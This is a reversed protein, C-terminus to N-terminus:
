RARRHPHRHHADSVHAHDHTLPLHRHPHAHPETFPGDHAHRHHEDHAHAHDHTLPEHTHLHTHREDLLLAIGAAMTAAALAITTDVREGLLPVALAAGLFPATAFYAAQRAGGLVRLARMTLVLSAGYAGAGLLLGAGTAALSPPPAGGLRAVLLMATGATLGKVRVIAIPDRGSLRQSLNTDLAWSACAGVVAAGGLLDSFGPEGRGGALVAGAVIAAAGSMARPGLHEGFLTTALLITFPAELNLLLSVTVASVHRLGVLLLWPGLMGGAVVVGAMVPADNWTLPTEVRGRRMVLALGAGLYLLGALTVPDVTPVLLKALPASAGFLAAAALAQLAGGAKAASTAVGAVTGAPGGGRRPAIIGAM